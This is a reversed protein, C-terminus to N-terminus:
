REKGRDLRDAREALRSVAAMTRSLDTKVGRFHRDRKLQAQDYEARKEVLQELQRVNDRNITVQQDLLPRGYPQVAIKSWLSRFGAVLPGILPIYSQFGQESVNASAMLQAMKEPSPRSRNMALIRLEELGSEIAERMNEAVKDKSEEERRDFIAPLNLITNRYSTSAASRVEPDLRELWAMEAPFTDTILGEIPYHKVLYRWRSTHLQNHFFRSGKNAVASEIHEAGAGPVVIVRYGSNRARLCLDAEEYYLFYEPDFLGIEDLMTRRVAFVAGTVYEVDAIQDYQGADEEELGIHGPVGRPYELYGGAHQIRKSGPYFTKCGAIGIRDDASLPAILDSILGPSVIVDPNILVAFDSELEQLAVNNGGAFGLNTPNRIVKISPYKQTIFDVSGDTSANDIVIYEANEYESALLASLCDGIYVQSNWNLVFCTISPLM